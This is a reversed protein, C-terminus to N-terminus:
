SKTALFLMKMFENPSQIMNQEILTTIMGRLLENEKDVIDKKEVIDIKKTCSKEHRHFSQIHKYNKGCSCKYLQMNETLMKSCQGFNHKKTNLHQKFLFYKNCSYNCKECYYNSKPIETEPTCIKQAM